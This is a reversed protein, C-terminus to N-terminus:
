KSSFSVVMIMGDSIVIEVIERNKKAYREKTNDVISDIDKYGKPFYIVQTKTVQSM